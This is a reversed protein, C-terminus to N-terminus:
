KMEYQYPMLMWIKERNLLRLYQEKTDVAQKLPAPLLAKMLRERTQEANLSFLAAFPNETEPYYRVKLEKGDPSVLSKAYAVADTLGGTEDVLGLKKADAGTWVRGQALSDVQAVSLGRNEAVRQLFTSYTFEVIQQYYQKEVTDLPRLTGMDAHPHTKVTDINVGIANAAGKLDPILGFVGISGTITTRDAFIKQGAMAMYYGGSATVNGMSVVLPKKAALLKLERWIQESAMASGGPSNIRLVVAAIKSNDKLKRIQKILEDAGIEDKNGEGPVIQGEALLVGITKGTLPALKDLLKKAKNKYYYQTETILHIDQTDTKEGTLGALKGKAQDPYVIDDALRKEKLDAPVRLALGEAWANLSDAPIHRGEAVKDLVENWIGFVLRRNQLRNADSMEKQIFPEVASKFKGHRIVQVDIHLKELLNKFFMIQVAMGKWDAVAVPHVWQKEAVSSLYLNKATLVNNYAVVPKGSKAFSELASRLEETQAWGAQLGDDHILIGDIRDDTRAMELVELVQNFTLAPRFEFTKTDFNALPDRQVEQLPYDLRLEIYSHKDIFTKDSTDAQKSASNILFGLSMVTLWFIAAMTLLSSVVILLVYKLFEKFSMM